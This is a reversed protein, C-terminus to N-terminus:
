ELAAEVAELAEWVTPPIPQGLGALQELVGRFAKAGDRAAAKAAAEEKGTALYSKVIALAAKAREVGTQMTALVAAEEPSPTPRVSSYLRVLSEAQEVALKASTYTLRTKLKAAQVEQPTPMRACGVIEPAAVLLLFAFAPAATTGGLFPKPKGLAGRYPLLGMPLAKAIHHWLPAAAAILAGKWAEHLPIGQQWSEFAAGVLLSPVTQWVTWILQVLPIVKPLLAPPTNTIIAEKLPLLLPWRWLVPAFRRVLYFGVWVLIPLATWVLPEPLSDLLRAM